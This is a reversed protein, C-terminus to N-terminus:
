GAMVLEHGFSPKRIPFKFEELSPGLRASGLAIIGVEWWCWLEYFAPSEALRVQDNLHSFWKRNGSVARVQELIEDNGEVDGLVLENCGDLEVWAVLSDCM